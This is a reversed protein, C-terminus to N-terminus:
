SSRTLDEPHPSPAPSVLETGREPGGPRPRAEEVELDAKRKQGSLLPLPATQSPLDGSCPNM